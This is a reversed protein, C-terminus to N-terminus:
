ANHSSNKVEKLKVVHAKLATSLGNQAVYFAEVLENFEDFHKVLSRSLILKNMARYAELFDTRAEIMTKTTEKLAKRVSVSDEKAQKIKETLVDEERRIAARLARMIKVREEDNTCAMNANMLDSASMSDYNVPEDKKTATNM